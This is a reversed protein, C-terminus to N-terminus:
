VSDAFQNIIVALEDPKELPILHGAGAICELRADPIMKAMRRSSRAPFFRDMESYCILTPTQIQQIERNFDASRCALLDGYLVGRRTQEVAQRTANVWRLDTGSGALREVLWDISQRYTIPNLLGQTIEVPIPCELSSSVLILGAIRDPDTLVTQLAIMGGLSHGVLILKYIGMEQIFDLIVRAYDAVSHCGEGESKGHGPLDITFVTRDPMRRLHTHWGLSSGGAGHVLLLPLGGAKGLPSHQYYCGAAHPM